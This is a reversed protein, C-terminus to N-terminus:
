STGITTWKHIMNKVDALKAPKALYDDMGQSLCRERDGVMANATMAVIPTCCGSARLAATATFGDMVPMECDMLIVDFPSHVPHPLSAGTGSTGAPALAPWQGQSRGSEAALGQSISSPGPPLFTHVSLKPGGSGAATSTEQQDERGGEQAQAQEQRHRGRNVAHVGEQGNTALTVDCGVVKLMAMVVKASITNDECLLVRVRADDPNGYTHTLTAAAGPSPSASSGAQCSQGPTSVPHLSRRGIVPSPSTSATCMGVGVTVTFTSGVGVISELQIDGDMLQALKKSIALGLGTGGYERTTSHDAQMFPRFLKKQAKECIGLGTDKVRIVLRSLPGRKSASRNLGRVLSLSEPSRHQLLISESDGDIPTGTCSSPDIDSAAPTARHGHSPASSLSPALASQDISYWSPDESIAPTATTGTPRLHSAPACSMEVTIEGKSTFKLSNGVLNVLVQRLRGPDGLVQDPVSDDTKVTMNVGKARLASSLIVAVDNLLFRPLFPIHEVGLGGAELKSFDLIDNIINMLVGSCCQITSLLESCEPSSMSSPSVRVPSLEDLKIVNGRTATSCMPIGQQDTLEPLMQSTSSSQNSAQEEVMSKILDISGIIGTLPTRIEHSMTALLRTRALSDAQEHTVILQERELQALRLRETINDISVLVERGNMTEFPNLAIEVPFESADKKVGFLDAESGAMQRVEANSFFEQVLSAHKARVRPPILIDIPRNLLESRCYGFMKEAQSNAFTIIGTDNVNIM